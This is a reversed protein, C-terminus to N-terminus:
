DSQAMIEQIENVQKQVVENAKECAIRTNKRVNEWQSHSANQVKEIQNNLATEVDRLKKLEEEADKSKNAKKLQKELKNLRRHLRNSIRELKAVAMKQQTHNIDQDITKGLADFAEVFALDIASFESKLDLRKHESLPKEDWRPDHQAPQSSTVIKDEQATSYDNTTQQKHNTKSSTCQTLLLGGFITAIAITIHAQLRRM